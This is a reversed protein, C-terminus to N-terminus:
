EEALEPYGKEILLAKVEERNREPVQSLKKKGNVILNFYIQSM